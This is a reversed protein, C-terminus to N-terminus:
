PRFTEMSRWGSEIFQTLTRQTLGFSMFEEPRMRDPEYSRVFEPLRRLREIVDAGIPEDIGRARPVGDQLLTAQVSPHISLILDAGALGLVHHNGRLAAILLTAEYRHAKYLRYAHRATAVGAVRLDAEDVGARQDLAVDRLYDDLRGIMMVAFCRGPEVGAARARALGRRHREAIAIIQAVTFSVTMTVTIGAATCEELVDLGAATAPLKVAINPAWRAFRQAMALMAERRGALAPNVQACVYGQRGATASYVPMLEAAVHSVVAHMWAEARAEPSLEAALPGAAQTWRDPRSRLALNVLVPNTTAGVAGHALGRALEDPDASDHWWATPTEQALWQLYSTAAM